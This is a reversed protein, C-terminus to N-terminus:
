KRNKGDTRKGVKEKEAMKQILENNKIVWKIAKALENDLDKEKEKTIKSTVKPNIAYMNSENCSKITGSVYYLLMGRYVEMEWSGAETSSGYTKNKMNYFGCLM